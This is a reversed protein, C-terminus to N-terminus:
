YRGHQKSVYNSLEVHQINMRRLIGHVERIIARMVLYVLRPQVLLLAEFRDRKLSYIETSGVARLTASHELGDLFGLEGAMDRPRLLHLAIWDGNGTEHTVALSGSVLVHLENDVSGQNILIEGDKLSRTTVQEALLLCQAEDLEAALPSGNVMSFNQNTTM